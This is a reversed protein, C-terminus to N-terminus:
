FVPVNYLKHKTPDQKDNLYNNHQLLLKNINSKSIMLYPTLDGLLVEPNSVTCAQPTLLNSLKIRKSVVIFPKWLFKYLQHVMGEYGIGFECTSILRIVEAIPTRYTVEVVNYHLNKLNAVISDWYNYAPDKHYGPFELNHKSTWLVVLNKEEVATKKPYWLGHLPNFEELENIFRYRPISSFTHTITLKDIPKLCSLIYEFRDIIPEKDISSLLYGKPNPWHFNILVPREYKIVSSHAYCLGTIFDGYGEKSRWEINFSKEYM